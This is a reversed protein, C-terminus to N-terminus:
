NSRALLYKCFKSSRIIEVLKPDKKSVLDTESSDSQLEIQNSEFIELIGSDWEVWYQKRLIIQFITGFEYQVHKQNMENSILKVSDSGTEVSEIPIVKRQVRNGIVAMTEFSDRSLRTDSM